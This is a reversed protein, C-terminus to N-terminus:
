TPQNTPPAPPATPTVPPPAAPAPPPPPPPAAPPPTYAPPPPVAQPAQPGLDLQIALGIQIFYGHNDTGVEDNDLLLGVEPFASVRTGPLTWRFGINLAGALNSDSFDDKIELVAKAALNVETGEGVPMTYVIGPMTLWAHSTDDEDSLLIGSQATLALKDPILSFQPTVLLDYFHTGSESFFSIKGGIEFKDNLGYMGTGELGTTDGDTDTGHLAYNAFGFGVRAGGAPLQKATSYSSFACGASVSLAVLATIVARSTGMMM